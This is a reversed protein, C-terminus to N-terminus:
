WMVAVWSAKMKIPKVLDLQELWSKENNINNAGSTLEELAGLVSPKHQPAIQPKSESLMLEERKKWKRQPFQGGRLTQPKLSVSGVTLGRPFIYSEPCALWGTKRIVTIPGPFAYSGTRPNKCSSSPLFTGTFSFPTLKSINTAISGGPSFFM